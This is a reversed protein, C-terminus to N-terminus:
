CAALGHSLFISPAPIIAKKTGLVVMLRRVSGQLEVELPDLVGKQGGHAVTVYFVCM